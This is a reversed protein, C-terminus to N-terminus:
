YSTQDSFDYPNKVIEVLIPRHDSGASQLAQFKSCLLDQSVLCQDIPLMPMLLGGPSWTNVPGKGNSCGVMETQNCLNSYYHSWPTCNLDGIIVKAKKLLALDQVYYQFDLNRGKFAEENLPINPRVTLITLETGDNKRITSLIRPRNRFTSLRVESKILPLKSIIGIGGYKPFLNQHPYESFKAKINDAWDETIESFCVIDAQQTIALDHIVSYSKNKQGECNFSLIRVHEASPPGSPLPPEYFPTLKPINLCLGITAVIPFAGTRLGWASVFLTAQCIAYFFILHSCIECIQSYQGFFSAVSLILLILSAINITRKVNSSKDIPKSEETESTSPM